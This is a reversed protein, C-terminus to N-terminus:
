LTKIIKPSNESVKDIPIQLQQWNLKKIYNVGQEEPDLLLYSHMPSNQIIKLNDVM